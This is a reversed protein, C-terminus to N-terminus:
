WNRRCTPCQHRTPTCARVQRIRGVSGFVPIDRNEHFLTLRLSKAKGIGALDVIEGFSVSKVMGVTWDCITKGTFIADAM